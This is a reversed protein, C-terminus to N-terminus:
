VDGEATLAIAVGMVCAIGAVLLFSRTAEILILPLALSACLAAVGFVLLRDSGPMDPIISRVASGVRDTATLQEPLLSREL